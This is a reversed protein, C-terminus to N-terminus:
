SSFCVRHFKSVLPFTNWLPIEHKVFHEQFQIEYFARFSFNWLTQIKRFYGMRLVVTKKQQLRKLTLTNHVKQEEKRGKTKQVM